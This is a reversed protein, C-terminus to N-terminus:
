VDKGEPQLKVFTRIVPVAIRRYGVPLEKVLQVILGVVTYRSVVVLGAAKLMPLPLVKLLIREQSEETVDPDIVKVPTSRVPLVKVPVELLVIVRLRQLTSQVTM